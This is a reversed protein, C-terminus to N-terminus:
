KRPALVEKFQIFSGTLDRILEREVGSITKKGTLQRIIDADNKNLVYELRNGYVDKSYFEIVKSM